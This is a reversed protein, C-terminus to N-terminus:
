YQVQQSISGPVCLAITVIRVREMSNLADRHLQYVKVKQITTASTSKLKRRRRARPMLHMPMMHLLSLVRAASTTYRAGWVDAIVHQLIRRKCLFATAASSRTPVPALVGQGRQQMAKRLEVEVICLVQLNMAVVMRKQSM